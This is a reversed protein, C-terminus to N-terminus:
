TVSVCDPKKLKGLTWLYVQEMQSAVSRWSMDKVVRKGAFGMVSLRDTPMSMAEVLSSRLAQSELDIWWGASHTVIAEWPAGKTTIVPLGSALAEAISMGFNESTTPLVFLDSAGFVERRNKGVILGLMKVRSDLDAVAIKQCISAHYRDDDNAGAILLNWDPFQDKITGFVDLLLDLGKKPHIRSFFLLYRKDPSLSLRRKCIFKSDLDFFEGTDVGNPIVAIPSKIGLARVAELESVDTVHVCSCNNLSKRQFFSWSLNKLFKGKSLPWPFLSGRPSIILPIARDRQTKYGLYSVYNWLNHTHVVLDSNSHFIMDNLSNGIQRTYRLRRPLTPPFYQWRLHNSTILDNSPARSGDVSLIQCNIALRELELVLSPVSRAPGGASDDMQDILHCVNVPM